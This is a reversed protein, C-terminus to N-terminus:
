FAVPLQKVSVLNQREVSLGLIRNLFRGVDSAEKDKVVFSADTVGMSLLCQQSLFCYFLLFFFREYFTYHCLQNKLGPLSSEYTSALPFRFDVQSETKSPRSYM